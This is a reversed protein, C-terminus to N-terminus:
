KPNGVQPVAPIQEWCERRDPAPFIYRWITGDDCLLFLVDSSPAALNIAKRMEM